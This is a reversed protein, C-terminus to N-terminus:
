CRAAGEMDNTRTEVASATSAQPAIVISRDGGVAFAGPQVVCITREGMGTAPTAYGDSMIGALDESNIADPSSPVDNSSFTYVNGTQPSRIFLLALSAPVQQAKAEPGDTPWGIETGWEMTRLEVGNAIVNYTYNTKLGQIDTAKPSAGGNEHALVTYIAIEGQTIVMYRGVIFCDTQGRYASGEVPKADSGCSWQNSRDNKISGLEAYQNQITAKFTEVADRYRQNNLATGTGILAGMILLGTVGLFLMTEIITFGTSIRVSM